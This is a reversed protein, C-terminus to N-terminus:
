LKKMDTLYRPLSRKSQVTIHYTKVILTNKPSVREKVWEGLGQQLAPMGYSM